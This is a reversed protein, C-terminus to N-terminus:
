AMKSDNKSCNKLWKEGIKLDNKLWKQSMKRAIKAKEHWKHNM